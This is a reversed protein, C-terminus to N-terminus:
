YHDMQMIEYEKDYARASAMTWCVGCSFVFGLLTALAAGCALWFSWGFFQVHRLSLNRQHIMVDLPSNMQDDTVIVKKWFWLNVFSTLAVCLLLLALFMWLGYFYLSLNRCLQHRCVAFLLSILALLLFFLCGLIGYFVLLKAFSMLILHKPRQDSPSNDNIKFPFQDFPDFREEVCSRDTHYLHRRSKPSNSYDICNLEDRFDSCQVTDDCRYKALFGIVSLFSFGNSHEDFSECKSDCSFVNLTGQCQECHEEDSQDECDVIGDCSFGLLHDITVRCPEIEGAPIRESLAAIREHVTSEDISIVNNLQVTRNM